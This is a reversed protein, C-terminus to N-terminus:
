NYERVAETAGNLGAEILKLAHAQDQNPDPVVSLLYREIVDLITLALVKHQEPLQTDILDRLGSLDPGNEAILQKSADLYSVMNDVDAESPHLETLAIRTAIKVFFHIDSQQRAPNVNQVPGPMTCGLITFMPIFATLILMFVTTKTM